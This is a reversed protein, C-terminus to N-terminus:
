DEDQDFAISVDPTVRTQKSLGRPATLPMRKDPARTGSIPWWRKCVNCHVNVGLDNSVVRGENGCKECVRSNDLNSKPKRAQVDPLGNPDDEGSIGLRDRAESLKDRNSM